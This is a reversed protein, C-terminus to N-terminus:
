GRGYPHDETSFDILRGEHEILTQAASIGERAMEALIDKARWQTPIVVVDVPHTKLVDRYQIVQGSGPVHAGAKTPDSDVVTPFRDADVGFRNIFAAAKGTGGWIAVRRGSKALADLQSRIEREAVAARDAFANSRQARLAADSSVGLKVLAYQVEGDYGQAITDIDGARQMLTGFSQLTFHSFHEYFFDALRHHQLARDICPLEAFFWLPKGLRAASWALKDLFVAPDTLHELVHRMLILDPQFTAVDELPEFYRGHFEVGQGSEDSTSVDFGIYRGVRANSDALRAIFDGDGCGVDIVTPATPMKSMMLDRTAAMHGKWIGGQNFMRMPNKQYPIAEYSFSRNWVHTCKPCQVFDHPLRAMARASDASGPWGLTALPHEGGRFLPAAVGHSCVPCTAILLDTTSM